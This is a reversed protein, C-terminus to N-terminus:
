GRRGVHISRADLPMEQVGILGSQLVLPPTSGPSAMTESLCIQSSNLGLSVEPAPLILLESSVSALGTTSGLGPSLSDYAVGPDICTHAPEAEGVTDRRKSTHPLFWPGSLGSFWPLPPPLPCPSLTHRPGNKYFLIGKKWKPESSLPSCNRCLLLLCRSLFDRQGQSNQLIISHPLPSGPGGSEIPNKKKETVGRVEM